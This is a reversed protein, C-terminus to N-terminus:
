SVEVMKMVSFGPRPDEGPYGRANGDVRTQGVQYDFSSQTMPIAIHSCCSIM